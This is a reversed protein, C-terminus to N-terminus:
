IWFDNGKYGLWIYLACLPFVGDSVFNGVSLILEGTYYQEVTTIHFVYNLEAVVVLVNYNDGIQM